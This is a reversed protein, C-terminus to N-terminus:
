LAPRVAAYIGQVDSLIQKYVSSDGLRSANDNLRQHAKGFAVVARQAEDISTARVQLEASLSTMSFSVAPDAPKECASAPTDPCVDRALPTGAACAVHCQLIGLQEREVALHQVLLGLVRSLSPHVDRVVKGLEARSYERTLFAAIKQAADAIARDGDQTLKLWGARRAVDLTAGLEAGVSPEDSSALEGLERAYDSVMHLARVWKDGQAPCRSQLGAGILLRCNEDFHRLSPEHDRLNQGLEATASVSKLSVCGTVAVLLVVGLIRASM